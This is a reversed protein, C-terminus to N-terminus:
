LNRKCQEIKIEELIKKLNKTEYSDPLCKLAEYKKTLAATIKKCFDIDSQKESKILGGVYYYWEPNKKIDGDYRASLSFYTRKGEQSTQENIIEFGGQCLYKRVDYFHTMPQLVLLKGSDKLWNASIIESILIGGMGAIIVTDAEDKQVKNLGDSLRTSIQNELKYKKITEFANNLPGQNIDCALATKCIKNEILYVPLYAHDTGVDVIKECPAVMDAVM